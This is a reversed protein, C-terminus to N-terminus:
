MLWEVVVWIPWVMARIAWWVMTIGFTFFGDIEDFHQISYSILYIWYGGIYIGMPINM